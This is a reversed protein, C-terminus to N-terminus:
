VMYFCCSFQLDDKTIFNLHREQILGEEEDEENKGSYKSLSPQHYLQANTMINIVNMQKKQHLHSILM